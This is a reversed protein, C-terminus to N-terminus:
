SRRRGIAFLAGITLLSVSAPEPVAAWSAFVSSGVVRVADDKFLRFDEFDVVSDLNLDGDSRSGPQLLNGLIIDFDTSNCNGDLDVDCVDFVVTGAKILQIGNLAQFNSGEGDDISVSIQGSANAFVGTFKAFNVGETFSALAPDSGASIMTTTGITFEAGQGATDGQSVFYLDYQAGSDLGSFLITGPDVEGGFGNNSALYNNLLDLPAAYSFSFNSGNAGATWAVDVTTVNGESDVLDTGTPIEGLDNWATGVYTAPATTPGAITGDLGLGLTGTGASSTININIVQASAFCATSLVILCVLLPKRYYMPHERQQIDILSPQRVSLDGASDCKSLPAVTTISTARYIRTGWTSCGDFM